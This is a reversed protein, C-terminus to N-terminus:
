YGRSETLTNSQSISEQVKVDKKQREFESNIKILM